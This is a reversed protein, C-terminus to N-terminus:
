PRATIASEEDLASQLLDLLGLVDPHDLRSRLRGDVVDLIQSSSYLVVSVHAERRLLASDWWRYPETGQGGSGAPRSKGQPVGLRRPNGSLLGPVQRQREPAM